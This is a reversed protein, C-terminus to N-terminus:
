TTEKDEETSDDDIIDNRLATESWVPLPRSKGTRPDICHRYSAHSQYQEQMWEWGRVFYPCEDNFCVYNFEAEWTSATPVAWKKM